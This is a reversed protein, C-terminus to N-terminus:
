PTTPALANENESLFRNPSAINSLGLWFYCLDMAQLVGHCQMAVDNAFLMNKPPLKPMLHDIEVQNKCHLPASSGSSTWAAIGEVVCSVDVGDLAM